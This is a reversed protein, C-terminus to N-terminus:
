DAGVDDGLKRQIRSLVPDLKGGGELATQQAYRVAECLTGYEANTLSLVFRPRAM